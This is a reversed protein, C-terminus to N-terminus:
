DKSQMKEGQPFARMCRERGVLGRLVDALPLALGDVRVKAEVDDHALARSFQGSEVGGIRKREGGVGCEEVVVM